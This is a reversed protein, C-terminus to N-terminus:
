PRASRPGRPLRLRRHHELQDLPQRAAADGHQDDGVVEIVDELHGVPDGDQVEPTQGHGPRCRVKVALAHDFVHRGPGGPGRGSALARGLM